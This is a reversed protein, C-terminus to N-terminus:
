QKFATNMGLSQGKKIFYLGLWTGLRVGKSVRFGLFYEGVKEPMLLSMTVLRLVCVNTATLFEVLIEFSFGKQRKDNVELRSLDNHILM